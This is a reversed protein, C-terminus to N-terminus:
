EYSVNGNEDAYPNFATCRNETCVPAVDPVSCECVAGDHDSCYNKQLETFADKSAANISDYDCCASCLSDVLICDSDATCARFEEPITMPPKPAAMALTVGLALLACVSFLFFRM